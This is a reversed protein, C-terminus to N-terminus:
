HLEPAAPAHETRSAALDREIMALTAADVGRESLLRLTDEAALGGWSGDGEFDNTGLPLPIAEDGPHVAKWHAVVAQWMAGIQEDSAGHTRAFRVWGPWSM